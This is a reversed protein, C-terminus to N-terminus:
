SRLACAEQLVYQGNKFLDQAPYFCHLVAVALTTQTM